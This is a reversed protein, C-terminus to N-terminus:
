FSSGHRLVVPFKSTMCAVLVVDQTGTIELLPWRQIKNNM